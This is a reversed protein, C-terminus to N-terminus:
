SFIETGSQSLQFHLNQKSKVSILQSMKNYSKNSLKLSCATDLKSTM